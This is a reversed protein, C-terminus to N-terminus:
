IKEALVDAFLEADANGGSLVAVSTQGKADVSGNLLAALAVAGGPELVLKLQHFAFRMAHAVEADSVAVGECINKRNVEFTLEGPRPALLADCISGTTSPNQCRHGAALSRRTDDFGDPEVTIIRTEASLAKMATSLGATLGGGGCPVLVQDAVHGAAGLQQVIEMGVTGQGSMVDIDDYPAIKVQGGEKSIATAIEQRNESARDFGVVDAGLAITRERKAAPADHPMVITARVGFARAAMAVGQAHNGSSWAVVGKARVDEELRSLATYAGRFKFAGIHQLNEAKLFVRGGVRKDLVDNRLLPTVVSQGHLRAAADEILELSLVAHRM